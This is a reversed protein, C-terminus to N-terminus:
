KWWLKGKVVELGESDVHRQVPGVEGVVVSSSLDVGDVVEEPVVAYHQVELGVRVARVQHLVHLVAGEELAVQLVLPLPVGAHQEPLRLRGPGRQPAEDVVPVQLRVRGVGAHPHGQLVEVVHLDRETAAAIALGAEEAHVAAPVAHLRDAHLRREVPQGAPLPRRLGPALGAGHPGAADPADAAEPPGRALTGEQQPQAVPPLLLLVDERVGTVVVRQHRRHVEPVQILVANADRHLQM